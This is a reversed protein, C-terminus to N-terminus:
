SQSGFMWNKDPLIYLTKSCSMNTGMSEHSENTWIRWPQEVPVVSDWNGYFLGSSDLCFQDVGFWLFAHFKHIIRPKYQMGLM